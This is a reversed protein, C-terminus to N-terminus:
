YIKLEFLSAVYSSTKCKICSKSTVNYDSCYHSNTICEKGLLHTGMDCPMDNQESTNKSRSVFISTLLLVKSFKLLYIKMINHNLNYLKYILLQDFIRFDIFMLLNSTFRLEFTFILEFLKM